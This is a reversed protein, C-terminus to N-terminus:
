GRPAWEEYFSARVVAFQAREWPTGYHLADAVHFGADVYGAADRKIRQWIAAAMAPDSDLLGNLALWSVEHSPVDAARRLPERALADAEDPVRLEQRYYAVAKAYAASTLRALDAAEAEILDVMRVGKAAGAARPVVPAGRRHASAFLGARGSLTRLSAPGTGRRAAPYLCSPHTGWGAM